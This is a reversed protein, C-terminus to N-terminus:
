HVNEAELEKEVKELEKERQTRELDKLCKTTDEGLRGCGEVM